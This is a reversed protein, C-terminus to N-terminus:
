TFPSSVNKRRRPTAHPTWWKGIRSSMSTIRIRFVVSPIRRRSPWKPSTKHRKTQPKPLSTHIAMYPPTAWKSKMSRLRSIVPSIYMLILVLDDLLSWHIHGISVEAHSPLGPFSIKSPHFSRVTRHRSMAQDEEVELSGSPGSSTLLSSSSAWPVISIGVDQLKDRLFAEYFANHEDYWFHRLFHECSM